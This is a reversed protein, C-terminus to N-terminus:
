HGGDKSISSDSFANQENFRILMLEHGELQLSTTTILISINCHTKFFFFPSIDNKNSQHDITTMNQVSVNVLFM